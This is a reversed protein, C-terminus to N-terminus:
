KKIKIRELSQLKDLIIKWSEDFAHVKTDALILDYSKKIYETDIAKAAKYLSDVQFKRKEFTREIALLLEQDSTEKFIFPLDYIDKGRSNRDGRDLLCHIKESAIFAPPYIKWEIPSMSPLISKTVATKAVDELDVGISIDLHIRRLQKKEKPTPAPTGLKYLIKYRIGGYGSETEIGETAVNGFWLGDELNTDLAKIVEKELNVQDIGSVIADADRTYRNTDLEKFLVLGGGFILHEKLFPNTVLRAVIRELVVIGRVRNVDKVGLDQSVKKIKANWQDANFM